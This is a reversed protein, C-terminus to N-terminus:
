KFKIPRFFFEQQVTVENFFFLDGFHEQHEVQSAEIEKLMSLITKEVSCQRKIETDFCYTKTEVEATVRLLFSQDNRVEVTESVCVYVVTEAQLYV